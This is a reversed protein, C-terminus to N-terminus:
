AIYGTSNGSGTLVKFSGILGNALTRTVGVAGTPKQSIDYVIIVFLALGIAGWFGSPKFIDKM